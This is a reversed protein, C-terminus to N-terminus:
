RCYVTLRRRRKLCLRSRAGKLTLILFVLQRRSGRVLDNMLTWLLM